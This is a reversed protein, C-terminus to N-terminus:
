LADALIFELKRSKNGGFALGTLDDRKIWIEPGVLEKTLRDLRRLPTPRHILDKRPFAQIKKKLTDLTTKSM